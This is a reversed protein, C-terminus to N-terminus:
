KTQINGMNQVKQRKELIMQGLFEQNTIRQPSELSTTDKIKLSTLSIHVIHYDLLDQITFYNGEM